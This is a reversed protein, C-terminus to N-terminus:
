HLALSFVSGWLPSQAPRSFLAEANNSNEMFKTCALVERRVKKFLEATAPAYKAVDFANALGFRGDAM